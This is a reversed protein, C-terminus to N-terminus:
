AANLRQQRYWGCYRNLCIVDTLPTVVDTDPTALLLNVFCCPRNQPDLERALKFLPEFYEYARQLQLKMLISWM